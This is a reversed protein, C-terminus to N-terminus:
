DRTLRWMRKLDAPPRANPVPVNGFRKMLWGYVPIKFLSELEWGRVFHPIPCYFFFPDFFIVHNSIFFFSKHPHFVPECVFLVKAGSFFMIRRCFSRQLWDHKKPDLVVALAILCPVAVAFHLLSVVWLLTSRVVYWARKMYVRGLRGPSHGAIQM